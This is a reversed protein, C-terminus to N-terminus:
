SNNHSLIQESHLSKREFDYQTVEYIQQSANHTLKNRMKKEFLILNLQLNFKQLSKANKDKILRCFLEECLIVKRHNVIKQL